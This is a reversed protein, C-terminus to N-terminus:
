GGGGESRGSADPYPPRAYRAALAGAYEKVRRRASLPHQLEADGLYRVIEQAIWREELYPMRVTVGGESGLICDLGQEELYTRWRPDFRVTAWTAVDSPLFAQGTRRRTLDVEPRPTFSAGTDNAVRIRELKFTRQGQARLCYGELYWGDPSRFLLYPEVLRDSLEQRATTYYSINVVKHDRIAHNLVEVIQPDPPLVEDVVVGGEALHDGVLAHVKKRVSALSELGRLALTDGLLDLALLLARAMVPSLRAPEAFVDAMVDRVVHVGQPTAEAMLAYTGGGFNVLNILSLDGEVEARTLGLDKQLTKWSVLSPRREDALYYLLTMARALHEPAIPATSDPAEATGGPSATAASGPDASRSAGRSTGRSAAAAAGAADGARGGTEGPDGSHARSTAELLTRLQERLGAPELLEGCGGLGTIWSLLVQEEAYPLAFRSCTEDDGLWRVHPELRKVWWALDEGVRIIAEGRVPGLLWPPRAGYADRDYDAPVSFDRSKETVFRVTGKIRGLRFTRIADRLHDRGVVYWRGQIWFLSYPDLTREVVNGEVSPYSFSVTKGRTVADELRSLQRGSRRADEDPALAVPLQELEPLGSIGRGRLISMLALRLPRAYAFRGDLAALALCLAQQEAPSFEIGPLRFDGEPLFYLQAEDAVAVEAGDLVQIEIGVKALDARDAYFRRAFTEDTMEAYGEVSEQVERATSPRPRSLLFSLLSLQRILKDEDRSM